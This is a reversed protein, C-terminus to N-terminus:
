EVYGMGELRKRVEDDIPPIPMGPRSTKIGYLELISNYLNDHTVPDVVARTHTALKRFTRVILPVNRLEPFLGYAHCCFHSGRDFFGEGHDGTIWVESRPCADLVRPLLSDCFHIAGDYHAIYYAPRSAVYKHRMRSPQRQWYVADKEPNKGQYILLGAVKDLDTLAKLSLPPWKAYPEQYLADGIFPEAHGFSQYPCHTEQFHLIAFFHPQKAATRIFTEVVQQASPPEKPDRLYVPEWYHVHDYSQMIEPHLRIPNVNASILYTPVKNQKLTRVYKNIHRFTGLTDGSM